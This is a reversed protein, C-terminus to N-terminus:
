SRLLKREGRILWWEDSAM